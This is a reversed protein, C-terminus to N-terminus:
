AKAAAPAVLPRLGRDIPFEILAPGEIKMVDAFCKKLDAANEARFAPCGYAKASAVANLGPLDLAPVNPTEELIAFEKM